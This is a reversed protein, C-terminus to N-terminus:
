EYLLCFFIRIWRTNNITLGFTLIDGLTKEGFIAIFYGYKAKNLALGLRFYKHLNKQFVHGGNNNHNYTRSAENLSM